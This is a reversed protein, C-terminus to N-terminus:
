ASPVDMAGGLEFIRQACHSLVRRFFLDYSPHNIEFARGGESEETASEITDISKRIIFNIPSQQNWGLHSLIKIEIERFHFKVLAPMQPDFQAFSSIIKWFDFM